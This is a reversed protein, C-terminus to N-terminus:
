FLIDNTVKDAHSILLMIHYHSTSFCISSSVSRWHKNSSTQQSTNSKCCGPTVPLTPCPVAIASLLYCIPWSDAHLLIPLMCTQSPKTVSCVIYGSPSSCISGLLLKWEHTLLLVFKWFDGFTLKRNWHDILYWFLTWFWQMLFIKWLSSLVKSFDFVNLPPQSSQRPSSLETPTGGKNPWSLSWLWETNAITDAEWMMTHLLCFLFHLQQPGAHVTNPFHQHKFWNFNRCFLAWGMFMQRALDDCHMLAFWRVEPELYTQCCSDVTLLAMPIHLAISLVSLSIMGTHLPLLHFFPHLQGCTHNQGNSKNTVHLWFIGSSLGTKSIM